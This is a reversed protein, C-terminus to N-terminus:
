DNLKEKKKDWTIQLPHKGDLLQEVEEPTPKPGLSPDRPIEDIAQDILEQETPPSDGTLNVIKGSTPDTVKYTPM